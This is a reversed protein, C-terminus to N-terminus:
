GPKGDGIVEARGVHGFGDLGAREDASEAGAGLEGQEHLDGDRWRCLQFGVLDSSSLAEDPEVLALSATRALTVATLYRGCPEGKAAVPHGSSPLM